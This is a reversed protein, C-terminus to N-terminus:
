LALIARDIPEEAFALSAMTSHRHRHGLANQASVRDHRLREYMRDAVTKRLSHTRLKGTLGNTASTGELIRWAPVRSIPQNPGKRSHFLYATRLRLSPANREDLWAQLAAKADPHLLV